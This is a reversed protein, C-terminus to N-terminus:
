QFADRIQHHLATSTIHSVGIAAQNSTVLGTAAHCTAPVQSREIWNAINDSFDAGPIHLLLEPISIGPKSDPNRLL